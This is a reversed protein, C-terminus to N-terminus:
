PVSCIPRFSDSNFFASSVPVVVAIECLRFSEYFVDEYQDLFHAFEM